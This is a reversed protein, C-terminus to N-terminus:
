RVGIEATGTSRAAARLVADDFAAVTGLGFRRLDELTALAGDVYIGSDPLAPLEARRSRTLRDGITLKSTGREALVVVDNPDPRKGAVDQGRATRVARLLARAAPHGRGERDYIYDNLTPADTIQQRALRRAAPLSLM